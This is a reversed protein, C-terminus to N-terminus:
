KNRKNINPITFALVGSAILLITPVYFTFKCFSNLAIAILNSGAISGIRGVMMSVSVAM